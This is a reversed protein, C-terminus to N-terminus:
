HIQFVLVWVDVQFGRSLHHAFLGALLNVRTCAAYVVNHLKQLIRRALVFPRRVHKQMHRALFM